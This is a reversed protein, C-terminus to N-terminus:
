RFWCNMHTLRPANAIVPPSFGLPGTVISPYYARLSAKVDTQRRKRGRAMLTMPGHRQFRLPILLKASTVSSIANM